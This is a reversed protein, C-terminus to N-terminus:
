QHTVPRASPPRNQLDGGSQATSKGSKATTSLDPGFSDSCAALLAAAAALLYPRARM